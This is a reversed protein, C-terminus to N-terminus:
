GAQETAPSVEHLGILQTLDLALSLRKPEEHVKLFAATCPRSALPAACTKQRRDAPRWRREAGRRLDALVNRSWSAGILGRNRPGSVPEGDPDFREIDVPTGAPDDLAAIARVSM